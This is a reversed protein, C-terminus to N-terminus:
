LFLFQLSGLFYLTFYLIFWFNYAFSSFRGIFFVTDKSLLASFMMRTCNFEMGFAKSVIFFFSARATSINNPNEYERSANNECMFNIIELVLFRRRDSIFAAYTLSVLSFWM